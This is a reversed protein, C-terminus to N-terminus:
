SPKIYKEKPLYMYDHNSYRGKRIIGNPISGYPIFGAKLYMQKAKENDSFVSLTLIELDPLSEIAQQITKHMLNKGIGQRRYTKRITIGFLGIHKEAGFGLTVDAGGILTEGDFAFLKIASKEKIKKLYSNLYEKEEEQTLVKGQLRIYTREASLENIYETLAPYDSLQPPRYTIKM